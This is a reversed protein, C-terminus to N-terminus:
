RRWSDVLIMLCSYRSCSYIHLYYKRYTNSIESKSIQADTATRKLEGVIQKGITFTLRLILWIWILECINNHCKAEKRDLIVATTKSGLKQRNPNPIALSELKLWLYLLNGFIANSAIYSYSSDVMLILGRLWSWSCYLCCVFLSDSKLLPMSIM